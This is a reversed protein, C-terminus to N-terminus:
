AGFACQRAHKIHQIAIAHVKGNNQMSFCFFDSLFGDLFRFYVRFQALGNPWFPV